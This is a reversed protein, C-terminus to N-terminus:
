GTLIVSQSRRYHRECVPPYQAAIAEAGAFSKTLQRVIRDNIKQARGTAQIAKNAASAYGAVLLAGFIPQMIGGGLDRQLDAIGSAMGFRTVPVSRTLAHSAPTGAFGVGSGILAYGFGVVWYSAKEKWLALMTLFGLLVFVQGTLMAYSSALGV